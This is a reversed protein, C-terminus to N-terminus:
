PAEEAAFAREHDCSAGALHVVVPVSTCRGSAAAVRVAEVLASTIAAKNRANVVHVVDGISVVTTM